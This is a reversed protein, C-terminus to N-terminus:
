ITIRGTEAHYEPVIDFLDFAAARDIQDDFGLRRCNRGGSSNRMAMRFAEPSKTADRYLRVAIQLQDDTWDDIPENVADALGQAIAGAGLTDEVTIKGNTGACVLHVPCPGEALVRVVAALNVFAGILVRDAQASRHLAKTGNTTTFVITKGLVVDPTYALPNNDLNFGPILVGEREGGTLVSDRAFGGATRQATEVDLTPIVAAAGNALAHAITTSSRLIDLIVAIGGRVEKPEYLVPLLHVRVDRTM